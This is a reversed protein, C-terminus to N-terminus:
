PVRAEGGEVGAGAGLPDLRGGLGGLALAEAGDPGGVVDQNKEFEPISLTTNSRNSTYIGYMEYAFYDGGYVGIKWTRASM